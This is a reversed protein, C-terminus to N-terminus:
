LFGPQKRNLSFKMGRFNGRIRYEIPVIVVKNNGVPWVGCGRRTEKTCIVTFSLEEDCCVSLTDYGGKLM